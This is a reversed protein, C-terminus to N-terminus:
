VYKNFEKYFVKNTNPNPCKIFFYNYKYILKIYNNKTEPGDQDFVRICCNFSKTNKLKAYLICFPKSKYFIYLLLYIKYIM